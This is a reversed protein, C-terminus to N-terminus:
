VVRFGAIVVVCYAPAHVPPKPPEGRKKSPKLVGKSAGGAPAFRPNEFPPAFNFDAGGGRPAGGSGVWFCCFEGSTPWKM